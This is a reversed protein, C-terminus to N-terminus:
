LYPVQSTDTLVRTRHRAKSPPNLIRRQQPQPQPYAPIQSRAQSGGYAEPAARFLFVCFLVFGFGFRYGQRSEQNTKGPHINMMEHIREVLVPKELRDFPDYHGLCSTLTCSLCNLM